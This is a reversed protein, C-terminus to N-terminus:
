NKNKANDNQRGAYAAVEVLYSIVTVRFETSITLLLWTPLEHFVYKVTFPFFAIVLGTVRLNAILEFNFINQLATSFSLYGSM